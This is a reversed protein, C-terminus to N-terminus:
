WLQLMQAFEGIKSALSKLYEYSSEFTQTALQAANIEGLLSNKIEM